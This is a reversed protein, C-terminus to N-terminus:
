SQETLKIVLPDKIIEVLNIPPLVYNSLISGETRAHIDGRATGVCITAMYRLFEVPVTIVKDTILAEFAPEEVEFTCVLKLNLLSNAAQTFLYESECRIRHEIPNIAFNYGSGIQIDSGIELLDPHQEFKSTVIQVIRYPIEM